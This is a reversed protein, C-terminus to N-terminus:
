AKAADREGSASRGGVDNLVGHAQRDILGTVLQQAYGFVIAWAIIQASSDLASLGPVFGGRMLLLGVIEVVLVDAPHVTAAVGDDFDGGKGPGSLPAGNIDARTEGTACVVKGKDEPHFCIPVARPWIAGTAAILMAVITLAVTAGVIVRFFSGLRVVDRHRQSAAAHFANVVPERASEPLTHDGRKVDHAIDDIRMRRPDAKPLYRYVHAEVSPMKGALQDIPTMRLLFSEAADLNGLTSEVSHSDVLRLSKKWWPRRDAEATDRASKLFGEIAAFLADMGPSAAEQARILDVQAHIELAKRHM